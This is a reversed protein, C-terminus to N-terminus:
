GFLLSGNFSTISRPKFATNIVETWQSPGEPFLTLMEVSISDDTVYVKGNFFEASPRFRAHLMPTIECWSGAHGLPSSATLFIEGISVILENYTTRTLGGVVIDGVGPIHAAGTGYRPTPM